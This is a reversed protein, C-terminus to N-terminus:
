EEYHDMEPDDWGARRGFERLQHRREEPTTPDEEFLPKVREYDTLPVRAYSRQTRPDIRPLADPVGPVNTRLWEYDEWSLLMHVADAAVVRAPVDGAADLAQREEPTLENSM